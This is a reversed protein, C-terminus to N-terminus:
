AELEIMGQGAVGHVGGEVYGRKHFRKMAPIQPWEYDLAENRSVRRSRMAMGVQTPRIKASTEVGLGKSGNFLQM